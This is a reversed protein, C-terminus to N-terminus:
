AVEGAILSFSLTQSADYEKHYRFSVPRISYLVESANGMPKTDHQYRHSSVNRRGLRGTSTITASDLNTCFIPQVNSYIRAIFCSNDV